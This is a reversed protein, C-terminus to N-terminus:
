PVYKVEVWPSNKPVLKDIDARYQREGAESECILSLGLQDYFDRVQSNKQSPFYEAVLETCGRSKADLLIQEWFSFEIGRGIIRCSMFYNDITAQFGSYSLLIVGILGADGFRDKVELSYICFNPESTLAILDATSYRRNTLNFQNTKLSLESIRPLKDIANRRIELQLKLSALYDEKTDYQKQLQLADARMRYDSTKSKSEVAVGGSLFLEKIEQIAVPYDSLVKPVQIVKIMPLQRRVGECEFPSDDLYVFSELGLNLEAALERLNESKDSWNVRKAAIQKDRLVMNPHQDFVAAVDEPNNKSCLCLLAGNMELNSLEHQATWFINGPYDNSDLRIGAIGDEGIIGGWLTNDCDLALVKFYETSFGRSASTIRRALENLYALSYPAKSRYYFRRDFIRSSGLESVISESDIIKINPHASAEERLAQNFREITKSVRDAGAFNVSATLRHLTCLYITASGKASEFALRYRTRFEIEKAEITEPPLNALQAEFAPILSDFFPVMVINCIGAQKFRDM